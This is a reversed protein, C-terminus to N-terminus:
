CRPITRFLSITNEFEAVMADIASDMQAIADATYDLHSRVTRM